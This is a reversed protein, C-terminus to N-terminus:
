QETFFTFVVANDSGLLCVFRVPKDTTDRRLYAEGMVVGKISTDGVQSEAKSVALTDPAVTIQDLSPSRKKLTAQGALRCAEVEPPVQARVPATALCGFSAAAAIVWAHRQCKVLCRHGGGPGRDVPAHGSQSIADM